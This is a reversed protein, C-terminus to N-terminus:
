SARPPRRHGTRPSRVGAGCPRGLGCPGPAGCRADSPKWQRRRRAHDSRRGLTTQLGDATSLLPLTWRPAHPALGFVGRAPRRSLRCLRRRSHGTHKGVVGCVPSRPKRGRREARGRKQSPSKRCVEPADRRSLAEAQSSCMFVRRCFGGGRVGGWLPSPFLLVAVCSPSCRSRRRLLPVIARLRPLPVILGPSAPVATWNVGGTM